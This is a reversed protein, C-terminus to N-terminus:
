YIINRIRHLSSCLFVFFCFIFFLTAHMSGIFPSDTLFFMLYSSILILGYSSFKREGHKRTALLILTLILMFFLTSLFGFLGRMVLDSIVQNHSHSLPILYNEDYGQEVMKQRFGKRGSGFFPNELFALYGFKIFNYRILISSNGYFEGSDISRDLVKLSVMTKSFRSNLSPVNQIVIYTITTFTLFVYVIYKFELKRFKLYLVIIIAFPICLIVGRTESLFISAFSLFVVFSLLLIVKFKKKSLLIFLTISGLVLSVQAGSICSGNYSRPVDLFTFNVVVILSTISTALIITNDLFSFSKIERFAFYLPILLLFRSAHDIDRVSFSQDNFMYTLHSGFYLSFTIFLVKEIYKLKMRRRRLLYSIGILVLIFISYQYILKSENIFIFALSILSIIILNM